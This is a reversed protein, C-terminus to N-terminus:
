VFEIEQQYIIYTIKKSLKRDKDLKRKFRHSAQSVASEGIGFYSGIEKLTKRSYRHCLYLSAKRSLAVDEEM